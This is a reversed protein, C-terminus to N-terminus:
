SSADTKEPPRSANEAFMEWTLVYFAFRVPAPGATNIQERADLRAGLKEVARRSRLNHEAIRFIVTKVFRFAHALMTQKIDRNYIGGWYRRGIFTWGIEVEDPDTFAVSYRSMGVPLGDVKNIAVMAGGSALQDEFYAQFGKETAREPNPHQEWLLPDAALAYLAAFDQDRLPRMLVLQGALEPQFEFM